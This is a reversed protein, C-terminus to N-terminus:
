QVVAKRTDHRTAKRQWKTGWGMGDYLVKLRSRNFSAFLCHVTNTNTNNRHAYTAGALAMRTSVGEMRQHLSRSRSPFVLLVTLTEEAKATTGPGLLNRRENHDASQSFALQHCHSSSNLRLLVAVAVVVGSCFLLSSFWLLTFLLLLTSYTNTRRWRCDHRELAEDSM